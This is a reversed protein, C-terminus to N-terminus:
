KHINTHTHKRLRHHHEFLHHVKPDNKILINEMPLRLLHSENIGAEKPRRYPLLSQTLPVVDHPTLPTRGM